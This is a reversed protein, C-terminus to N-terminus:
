DGNKGENDYCSPSSIATTQRKQALEDMRTVSSSALQTPPSAIPPLSPVAEATTQALHQFRLMFHLESHSCAGRRSSPSLANRIGAPATSPQQPHGSTGQVSLSTEIVINRYRGHAAYLFELAQNKTNSFVILQIPVSTSKQTPRTMTWETPELKMRILMNTQWSM